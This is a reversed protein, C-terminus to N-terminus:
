LYWSIDSKCCSTSVSDRELPESRLPFLQRLDPNWHQPVESPWLGALALQASTKTRNLDTSQAAVIDPSYVDGLFGDYRKRLYQGQRYQALKGEQLTFNQQLTHIRPPSQPPPPPPLNCKIRERERQRYIYICVCVYIYIHIYKYICLPNQRCREVGYPFLPLIFLRIIDDPIRRQIFQYVHLSTYSPREAETKRRMGYGSFPPLVNRQFM